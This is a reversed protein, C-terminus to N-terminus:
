IDGDLVTEYKNFISRFSFEGRSLKAARISMEATSIDFMNLMKDAVDSAVFPELVLGINNELILDALWGKHNIIVPKLFALSDFFKNASNAWMAPHDIVTSIMADSRKIMSYIKNKSPHRTLIQICDLVISSVSVKIHNSGSMAVQTSTRIDLRISPQLAVAARPKDGTAQKGTLLLYIMAVTMTASDLRSLSKTHLSQDSCIDM